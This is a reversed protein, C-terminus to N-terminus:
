KIIIIIQFIGKKKIEQYKHKQCFKWKKRSINQINKWKKQQSNFVKELNQFIQQVHHIMLM